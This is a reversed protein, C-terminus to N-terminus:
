SIIGVRSRPRGARMRIGPLWEDEGALNGTVACLALDRGSGIAKM